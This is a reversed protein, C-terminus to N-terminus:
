RRAAKFRMTLTDPDTAIVESVLSRSTSVSRPLTPSAVIEWGFVFDDATVPQGDHWKLNPRLKWTQEMTGDPKIVWDGRDLAPVSAALEAQILGDGDIGTLSRTVLFPVEISGGATTLAQWPAWNPPENLIGVTLQKPAATREEQGTGTKATPAPGACASAVIAAAM